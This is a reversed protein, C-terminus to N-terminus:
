LRGFCLSKGDQCYKTTLDNPCYDCMLGKACAQMYTSTSAGCQKGKKINTVVLRIRLLSVM